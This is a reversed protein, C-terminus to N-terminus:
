IKHYSSTRCWHQCTAHIINEILWISWRSKKGISLSAFAQMAIRNPVCEQQNKKKKQTDIGSKHIINLTNVSSFIPRSPSFHSHLVDISRRSHFDFTHTRFSSWSHFTIYNATASRQSISWFSDLQRSFRTLFAILRNRNQPLSAAHNYWPSNWLVYVSCVPSIPM